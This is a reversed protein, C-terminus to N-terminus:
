LDCSEHSRRSGGAGCLLRRPTKMLIRLDAHMTWSAVYLYDLRCLEEFRLDHQGSVQWLGTMGPRMEFRRREWSVMRSCEEPVFPRPGVLSMDGRLVNWLQLLEDIGSRRLVRGVSTIRPDAENSGPAGRREAGPDLTGPADKRSGVPDTWTMSRLKLMTFPREDRGLRVQRLAVPGESTLKVMLAAIALFPLLVTLSVLSIVIDMLRKLSKATLSATGGDLSVVPMGSLDDVQAQWSTLEFYRPVVTLPVSGALARLSTVTNEPHARSFAVIVRDIGYRKCVRQLDRLGGLVVHSGDPDDDVFGVLELSASRLLRGAVDNAVTGTGVIVVRVTAVGFRALLSVTATRVLPLAVACAAAAIVLGGVSLVPRPGRGAGFVWEIALAVLVGGALAEIIAPVDEAGAPVLRKRPLAYLRKLWIGTLFCLWTVVIVLPVPSGRRNAAAGSLSLAAVIAVVCAIAIADAVAIVQWARLRHPRARDAYRVGIARGADASFGSRGAAGGDVLTVSSVHMPADSGFPHGTPM